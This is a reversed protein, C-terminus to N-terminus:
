IANPLTYNIALSQLAKDQAEALNGSIAVALAALITARRVSLGM